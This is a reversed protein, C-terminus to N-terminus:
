SRRALRSKCVRQPSVIRIADVVLLQCSLDRIRARAAPAQYGPSSWALTHFGCVLVVAPTFGFFEGLHRWAVFGVGVSIQLLIWFIGVICM